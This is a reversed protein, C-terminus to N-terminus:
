CSFGYCVIESVKNSTDYLVAGLPVFIIGIVLFTPIVSKATMVPQWAPLRQQKFATDVILFSRSCTINLPFSIFPQLFHCSSVFTHVVNM